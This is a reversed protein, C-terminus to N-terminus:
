ADENPTYGAVDLLTRIEAKNPRKGTYIIGWYRCDAGFGYEYSKVNASKISRAIDPIDHYDDVAVVHVFDAM